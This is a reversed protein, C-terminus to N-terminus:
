RRLLHLKKPRQRPQDINTSAAPAMKPKPDPVIEGLEYKAALQDVSSKLEPMLEVAKKFDAKAADLNRTKIRLYGRSCYAEAYDLKLAIAKSLNEEAKELDGTQTLAVGRCAYAMPNNPNRAIFGNLIVLAPDPNQQKYYTEAIASVVYEDDPDM